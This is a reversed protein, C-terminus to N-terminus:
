KTGEEAAGHSRDVFSIVSSQSRTSQDNEEESSRDDEGPHSHIHLPARCRKTSLPAIFLEQVVLCVSDAFAICTDYGHGRARAACGCDCHATQREVLFVAALSMRVHLSRLWVSM